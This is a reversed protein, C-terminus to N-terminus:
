EPRSRARQHGAGKLLEPDRNRVVEFLHQGRRVDDVQEANLVLPLSLFVKGPESFVNPEKAQRFLRACSKFGSQRIM